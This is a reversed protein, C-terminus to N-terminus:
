DNKEKEEQEPLHFLDTNPIALTAQETATRVGQLVVKLSFSVKNLASDVSFSVAAVRGYLNDAGDSKESM